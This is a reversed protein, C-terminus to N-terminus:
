EGQEIWTNDENYAFVKGNTINYYKSGFAIAKNEFINIPLNDENGELIMDYLDYTKDDINKIGILNKDKIMIM